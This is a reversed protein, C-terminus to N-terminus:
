IEPGRPSQGSDVGTTGLVREHGAKWKCYDIVNWDWQKSVEASHRLHLGNLQPIPRELVPKIIDEYLESVFREPSNFTLSDHVSLMCRVGEKKLHRKELENNIMITSQNVIFAENSQAKSNVAFTQKLTPYYIIQGFAHRIYGKQKMEYETQSYSKLLEPCNNFWWSRLVNAEALTWGYEKAVAESTRGFLFGLPVAKARRIRQESVDQRKFAKTHPKGEEFYLDPKYLEEYVIGYIYDGTEYVQKLWKVDALWAYIWLQLQAFDCTILWDRKPDDPIIISRLSGVEGSGKDEEFPVSEAELDDQDDRRAGGWDLVSYVPFNQLNPTSSLRFVKTGHAKYYAHIRGDPSIRGIYELKKKEGSIFDSLQLVLYPQRYKEMREENTEIWRRLRKRAEFDTTIKKKGRNRPDDNYQVPLQHTEYFFAKLHYPNTVTFFPGCLKVVTEEAQKIRAEMLLKLKLAVRLDVNCGKRRWEELIPLLPMGFEYFIEELQWKQLRRKQEKGALLTTIVDMGNYYREGAVSKAIDRNYYPLCTFQSLVFPKLKKPLHSHLYHSALMTDHKKNRMQEPPIIKEIHYQDYEGNHEYRWIEPDAFIPALLPVQQPTLVLCEYPRSGVGCMTIIFDSGVYDDEEVDQLGMTEVDDAFERAVLLTYDVFQLIDSDSPWENIKIEALPQGSLLWAKRLHDVAAQKFDPMRMVFAPHITAIWKRGDKREVCGMREFLGAQPHYHPLTSYTGLNHRTSLAGALVVTDAKVVALEKDLLRKCCKVEHDTPERNDPTLCKVQNTIFVEERRIGAEFLQRNFVRGSPGVLPQMPTTQVEERGPNQAIYILKVRQPDGHGWCPGPQDKLTCLECGLPKLSVWNTAM